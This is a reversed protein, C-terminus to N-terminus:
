SQQIAPGTTWNGGVTKRRHSMKVLM